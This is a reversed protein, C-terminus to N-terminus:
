KGHGELRAVCNRLAAIMEDSLRQVADLRGIAKLMLQHLEEEDVSTDVLELTGKVALLHESLQEAMEDLARNRDTM